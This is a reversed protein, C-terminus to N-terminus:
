SSMSASKNPWVEYVVTSIEIPIASPKYEVVIGFGLHIGGLAQEPVRLRYILITFPPGM